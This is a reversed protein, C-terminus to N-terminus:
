NADEREEEREILLEWASLGRWGPKWWSKLISVTACIFLFASLVFLFPLM